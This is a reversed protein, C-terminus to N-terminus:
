EEKPPEPLPMWHTIVGRSTTVDEVWGDGIRVNTMHCEWACFGAFEPFKVYTLVHQGEEPLRDKVSIWQQRPVYDLTSSDSIYEQVCVLADCILVDSRYFGPNLRKSWRKIKDALDNADIPRIEAM